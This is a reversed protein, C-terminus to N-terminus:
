SKKKLAENKEGDIEQSIQDPILTDTNQTVTACNVDLKNKVKHMTVPFIFDEGNFHIKLEEKKWDIACDYKKLLPNSFILMPKSHKVVVFDEHITCSPSLTIPLKRVVGISETPITAIGSLDYKESKDIKTGVRKVIDETIIATEAGSDLVMAPIKLRKIKCKMTALSTAPEKKRVFDIEMSDDLTEEEGDSSASSRTESEDPIEPIPDRYNVFDPKPNSITVGYKSKIKEIKDMPLTGDFLDLVIEIVQREILTNIDPQTESVAESARGFSQKKM